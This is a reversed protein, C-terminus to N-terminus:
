QCHGYFCLIPKMNDSGHNPMIAIIVMISRVGAQTQERMIIM